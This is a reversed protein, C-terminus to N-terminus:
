RNYCGNYIMITSVQRGCEKENRHTSRRHSFFKDDLLYTDQGDVSVSGVGYALLEAEIYGSLDFLFHGEKESTEFFKDAGKFENYFEGDVEYSEQAICPGIMAKITAKDCGIEVMKDITNQCVGSVASRWGAHASGIVDQGDSTKGEFLVPACDATVIGLVVNREKTVMADADPLGKYSGEVIICENGHVQNVMALFSGGVSDLVIEKNEKVHELEDGCNESLSLSAFGGRSVGGIKTFFEHKVM